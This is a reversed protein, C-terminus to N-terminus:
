NKITLEFVENGHIWYYNSIKFFKSLLDTIENIKFIYYYRLSKVTGDSNKWPIYNDGYNFKLKNNHNQNKSWISLLIKGNKKLLRKIEKLTNMRREVNSLHHFSAILLIADATQDKLPINMMDSLIVKKNKEKCISIFNPCNDIGIFNFNKYNMNRGNGCGIDLVTSNLPLSNIFSDIWCWNNLRKNSFKEAINNYCEINKQEILPLM